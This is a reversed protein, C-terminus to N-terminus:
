PVPSLNAAASPLTLTEKPEEGGHCWARPCCLHDAPCVFLLGHANGQYGVLLRAVRRAPGAALVFDHKSSLDQRATM